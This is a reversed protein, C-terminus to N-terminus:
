IDFHYVSSVIINFCSAFAVLLGINGLPFGVPISGM